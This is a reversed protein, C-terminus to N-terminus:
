PLQCVGAGTVDFSVLGHWEGIREPASEIGHMGVDGFIAGYFSPISERIVVRHLDKFAVVPAGRDLLVTGPAHDHVKVDRVDPVGRIFRNPDGNQAHGYGTV